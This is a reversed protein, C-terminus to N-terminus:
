AAPRVRAGDGSRAGSIACADGCLECQLARDSVLDHAGCLLTADDQEEYDSRTTAM